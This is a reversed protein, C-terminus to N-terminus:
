FHQKDYVSFTRMGWLTSRITRFHYNSFVVGPYRSANMVKAQCLIQVDNDRWCTRRGGVGWGDRTFVASWWLIITIIFIINYLLLLLLLLLLFYFLFTLDCTELWHLYGHLTLLWLYQVMVTTVPRESNFASTRTFGSMWVSSAVASIAVDVSITSGWYNRLAWECWRSVTTPCGLQSCLSWNCITVEKLFHGNQALRKSCYRWDRSWLRLIRSGILHM